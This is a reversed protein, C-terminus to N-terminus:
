ANPTDEDRIYRRLVADVADNGTPVADADVEAGAQLLAEVTAPFDGDYRWSHVSGYIATDLPRADYQNRATLPPDYQLLVKVVEHFGHFSAQHLPTSDDMGRVHPDFGAELMMRVADVNNDWAADALLRQDQDPLAAAIGPSEKLMARVTDGDARECAAVFRREPSSRDLLLQYLKHYGYRRAIQHPSRNAGFTYLYIHRGPAPPVPAYGQQGVRRDIATPDADLLRLALDSDGLACAMFIDAQAGREILYRCLSERGDVMWQAATANHDVDRADIEAGQELLYDVVERTRAFHLPRQGDPGKAHVRAPDAEILGRLVDLMGQEAAAHADVRAGREILFRATDRDRGHLVGFAGAWWASKANIDAGHALLVDVLERSCGAAIVVAPADFDIVPDNIREALAPTAELLHRVQAAKGGKVARVFGDFAEGLGSRLLDIRHKLKPWSSFGYERAIVLQADSLTFAAPLASADPNNEWRPHVARAREIAAADRAQVAKLLARAQKKDYDLNPNPPLSKSMRFVKRQNGATRM